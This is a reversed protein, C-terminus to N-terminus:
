TQSKPLYKVPEVPSGNKRIEFHLLVQGNNDQGMKAIKQGGSVSDGEKVM